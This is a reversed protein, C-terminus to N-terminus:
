RGDLEKLLGELRRRRPLIDRKVSRRLEVVSSAVSWVCVLIMTILMYGDHSVPKQNIRWGLLLIATPCVGGMLATVMVTTQRARTAQDDLQAIGRNLQDRLSEGFSQERLSQARHHVYVARGAFPAAAAGGIGVAYDWSTTGNRDRFLFMLALFFAM